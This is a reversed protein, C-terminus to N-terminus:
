ARAVKERREVELAAATAKTSLCGLRIWAEVDTRRFRKTRHGLLNVPRPMKGTTHMRSVTDKHIDLVAAVEEITMLPGPPAFVKGVEALTKGVAGVLRSLEHDDALGAAKMNAQLAVLFADTAAATPM